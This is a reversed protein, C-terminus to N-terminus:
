AEGPQPKVPSILTVDVNAARFEALPYRSAGLVHKM